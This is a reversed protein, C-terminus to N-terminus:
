LPHVSSGRRGRVYIASMPKRKKDYRFNRQVSGTKRKCDTNQNILRDTASSMPHAFRNENIFEIVNVQQVNIIPLSFTQILSM